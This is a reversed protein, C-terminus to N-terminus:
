TNAGDNECRNFQQRVLRIFSEITPSLHRSKLYNLYVSRRLRNDDMPRVYFDAYPELHEVYSKPLFAMGLGNEVLAIATEFREVEYSIRPHVNMSHFFAQANKRTEFGEPFMVWEISAYDDSTWKDKLRLPETEPMIIALPEEYLQISEVAEDIFVYNTIVVDVAFTELLRSVERGGLVEKMRILTEPHEARFARVLEVLWGKVSEIIGIKLEPVGHREVRRMEREVHEFHIVLRRGEEYLVKGEETVEVSRTTRHLLTLSLQHELEQIAKSLSPQSIHLRKAAESFSKAEVVALFYRISRINM